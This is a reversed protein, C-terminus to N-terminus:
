GGFWGTRKHVSRFSSNVVKHITVGHLQISNWRRKQPVYRSGDEHDLLLGLMFGAILLCYCQQNTAQIVRRVQVHLRYVGGFRQYVGVSSCLTVFGVSYHLKINWPPSNGPWHWSSQPTPRNSVLTVISEPQACIHGQEPPLPLSHAIYLSRNFLLM